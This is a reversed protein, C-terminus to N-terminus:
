VKKVVYVSIGTGRRGKREEMELKLKRVAVNYMVFSFRIDFHKM